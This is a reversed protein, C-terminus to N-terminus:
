HMLKFNIKRMSINHRLRVPLKKKIEDVQKQNDKVQSIASTINARYRDLIAKDSDDFGTLLDNKSIKALESQERILPLYSELQRDAQIHRQLQLLETQQHAYDAKVDNLQSQLNLYAPYAKKADQVKQELEHYDKLKVNIQQKRGRPKYLEDAIKVLEKQLGAWKDADTM